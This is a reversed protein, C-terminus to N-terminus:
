MMKQIYLLEIILLNLICPMQHVLLIINEEKKSMYKKDDYMQIHNKLSIIDDDIKECKITIDVEGKINEIINIKM